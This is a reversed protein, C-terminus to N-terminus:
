TGSTLFWSMLPPSPPLVEFKIFTKVCPVVQLEGAAAAESFYCKLRLRTADVTASFGGGRV